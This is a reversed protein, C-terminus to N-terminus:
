LPPQTADALVCCPAPLMCGAAGEAVCGFSLRLTCERRLGAWRAPRRWLFGHRAPSRWVVSCLISPSLRTATLPQPVRRSRGVNQLGLALAQRGPVGTPVPSPTPEPSPSPSPVPAAPSPSPSPVPAPSPSPKSPETPADAMVASQMGTKQRSEYGGAAKKLYCAQEQPKYTWAGCASVSKCADCCAAVSSVSNIPSVPLDGGFFDVGEQVAGCTGACLSGVAVTACSTLPPPRASTCAARRSVAGWM